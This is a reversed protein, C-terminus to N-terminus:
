SADDKMSTSGQAADPPTTGNPILRMARAYMKDFLAKAEPGEAIAPEELLPRGSDISAMIEARTAERGEAYWHLAKPPGVQFLPGTPTRMITYSNTVWVLAVGPNRRIMDGGPEKFEDIGNENRRMRPRTLFPCAIASFTACEIHSPPESTVRNVACMPGILFAKKAWLKGGCIWCLSQKVAPRMKSADAVRFDAKGDIWAVFWPVPFGRHDRPLHKMEDPLPPLQRAAASIHGEYDTTEALMTM